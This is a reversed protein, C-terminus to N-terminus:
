PCYPERALGSWNYPAGRIDSLSAVRYFTARFRGVNGLMDIDFQLIFNVSFPRQLYTTLLPGVRDQLDSPVRQESILPELEPSGLM